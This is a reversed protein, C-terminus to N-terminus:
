DVFYDALSAALQSAPNLTRMTGPGSGGQGQGKGVGRFEELRRDASLIELLPNRGGQKAGQEALAWLEGIAEKTAGEDRQLLRTVWLLAAREDALPDAGNSGMMELPAAAAPGTGAHLAPPPLYQAGLAAGYPAPVPGAAPAPKVLHQPFGTWLDGPQRQFSRRKRPFTAIPGALQGAHSPGAGAGADPAPGKRGGRAARRAKGPAAAAAAAANSNNAAAQKKLKHNAKSFAQQLKKTDATLENVKCQKLLERQVKLEEVSTKVNKMATSRGKEVNDILRDLSKMKRFPWRAIGFKRCQRKLVTLGVGLQKCAEESPLHFCSSLKELTLAAKEARKGGAEGGRGGGKGGAKRGAKTAVPKKVKGGKGALGGAAAALPPAALQQQLHPLPVAGQPPAMWPQLGLAPAAAAAPAGGKLGAEQQMAQQTMTQSLLFPRLDGFSTAALGDVGLGPVSFSPLAAIAHHLHVDGPVGAAAGQAVLASQLYQSSFNRVIQQQAAVLHGSLSRQVDGPPLGPVGPPVGGPQLAGTPPLGGPPAVGAGPPWGAPLGAAALGPAPAAAEAAAAPGPAGGGGGPPPAAM